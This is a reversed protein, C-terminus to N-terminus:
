PSRRSAAAASTRNTDSSFPQRGNAGSQPNSPSSRFFGSTPYRVGAFGMRWRTLPQQYPSSGPLLSSIFRVLRMARTEQYQAAVAGEPVCHLVLRYRQGPRVAV